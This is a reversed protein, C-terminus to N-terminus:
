AATKRKRVISWILLFVIIGFIAGCSDLLVDRLHPGRDVSFRQITEDVAAVLVCSLAAAPIRLGRKKWQLNMLFGSMCFGLAAFETFHATKRLYHDFVDEDIRGKPDLLPKLLGMLWGSEGSSVDRPLMSQGWIFAILLVTLVAFVIAAKKM